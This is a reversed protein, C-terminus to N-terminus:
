SRTRPWLRHLELFERTRLECVTNSTVKRGVGADKLLKQFRSWSISKLPASLDSDYYFRTWQSRDQRLLLSAPPSVEYPTLHSKKRRLVILTDGNQARDRFRLKGVFRMWTPEANPNLHDIAKEAQRVYNEEDAFADENLDKVSVIWVTNGGASVTRKRGRNTQRSKRVKLNLLKRLNQEDLSEAQFALQYLFSRAQSVVRASDTLIAAEFLQSASSVSANASGVVAKDDLLIIKAHLDPLCFLRVKKRLKWLLKASTQGSQIANPSADVILTSGSKLTLYEDSTFYAIAADIRKAKRALVRVEPWLNSLLLSEV